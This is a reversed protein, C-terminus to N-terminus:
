SEGSKTKANAFFMTASGSSESIRHHEEAIIQDAVWKSSFKPSESSILVTRLTSYSSPLRHVLLYGLISDTITEGVSELQHAAYIIADVQPQLPETDFLSTCFVKELLSAKRLDSGGSYRAKLLGWSEKSTQARYICKQGPEKLAKLLMLQAEQDKLFWNDYATVDITEDPAHETGNVVHWLGRNRLGLTLAKSWLDHNKGHEDLEPPDYKAPIFPQNVTGTGTSPSVTISSPSNLNVGPASPNWAPQRQPTSTTTSTVPANDGTQLQPSSTPTSGSAVQSNNDRSKGSRTM